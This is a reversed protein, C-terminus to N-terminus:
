QPSAQDPPPTQGGSRNVKFRRSTRSRKFWDLFEDHAVMWHYGDPKCASKLTGRICAQRFALSSFPKGTIRYAIDAADRLTIHGAPAKVLERITMAQWAEAEKMRADAVTDLRASTPNSAYAAVARSYERAASLWQADNIALWQADSLQDTM